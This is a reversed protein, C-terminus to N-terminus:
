QKVFNKFTELTDQVKGTFKDPNIEKEVFDAAKGVAKRVSGVVQSKKVKASDILSKVEPNEKAKEMTEKVYKQATEMKKGLKENKQLAKIGEAIKANVFDAPKKLFAKIGEVYKNGGEVPNLKGTKALYLVAGTAAAATLIRRATKKHTNQTPQVPTVLM